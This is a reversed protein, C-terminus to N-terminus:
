IVDHRDSKNALIFGGFQRLDSVFKIMYHQISYVEVSRCELEYLLYWTINVLVQCTDSESSLKFMVPCSFSLSVM